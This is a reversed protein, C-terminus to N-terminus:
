LMYSGSTGEETLRPELGSDFGAKIIELSRLLQPPVKLTGFPVVATTARQM